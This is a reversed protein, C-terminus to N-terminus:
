FGDAKRVEPKVDRMKSKVKEPSFLTFPNRSFHIFKKGNARRLIKVTNREIRIDQSHEFSRRFLLLRVARRIGGQIISGSIAM